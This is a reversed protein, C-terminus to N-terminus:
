VCLIFDSLSLGNQKELFLLYNGVSFLAIIPAKVQLAFGCEDDDPSASDDWHGIERFHYTFFVM